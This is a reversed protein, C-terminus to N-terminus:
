CRSRPCLYEQFSNYKKWKSLLRPVLIESPRKIVVPASPDCTVEYANLNEEFCLTIWKQLVIYIEEEEFVYLAMIKSFVPFSGSKSVETMAFLEPRYDIGKFTVHKVSLIDNLANLGLSVLLQAHECEEVVLRKTGRKGIELPNQDKHRDSAFKMQFMDMLSLLPNKFNNMVTAAIKFFLHRAEYRRITEAYHLLHHHKNIFRIKKPVKKRKKSSSPQSGSFLDSESEENLEEQLLLEEDITGHYDLFEEEAAIAEENEQQANEEENYPFIEQFLLHHKHVLNDLDNIDNETLARSFVICMIQNLLSILHIFKDNEPVLDGFLFGFARTLLWMQAGTQHLNYSAINNLYTATMKAVPKNKSDTFGYDFFKLRSQLVDETFYKKQCVYYRLALKVKMKCVGQLLDHFVDFVSHTICSFVKLDHIKPEGAVGTATRNATRQLASEVDLKHQQPTRMAGIKLGDKWMDTRKIYCARCFCSASPSLLGIVEHIAATDGIQAVLIVPFILPVGDILIELGDKELKEIDKLLPEWVEKQKADDAFALTTVFIFSLLANLEPPLNQIGFYFGCVKYQGASASLAQLLELDDIYLIIRIADKLDDPLSAYISGDRFTRLYEDESAKASMIIKRLDPDNLICKLIEIISVYQFSRRLQRARLQLSEPDLRSDFYEGLSKTESSILGYKEKFVELQKNKTKLHKFPDELTFEQFLKAVEEPSHDGRALFEEVKGRLLSATKEMLSFSQEQVRQVASSTMYNVSRLDLIALEASRKLLENVMGSCGADDKDNNCTEQSSYHEEINNTGQINQAINNEMQNNEEELQEDASRFSDQPPSPPILAEEYIPPTTHHFSMHTYLNKRYLFENRCGDQGCVFPPAHNPQKLHRQFGKFGEPVLIKCKVCFRDINM